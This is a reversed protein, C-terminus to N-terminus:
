QRYTISNIEMWRNTSIQQDRSAAELLLGTGAFAALLFAPVFSLWLCKFGM